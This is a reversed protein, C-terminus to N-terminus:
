TSCIAEQEDTAPMLSKESASPTAQRSFSSSALYPFPIPEKLRDSTTLKPSSIKASYARSLM